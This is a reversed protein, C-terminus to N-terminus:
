PYMANIKEMCELAEPPYERGPIPEISIFIESKEYTTIRFEPPNVLEFLKNFSQMKEYTMYILMYEENNNEVYAKVPINYHTPDKKLNNEYKKYEARYKKYNKQRWCTISAEEVYLKLPAVPVAKEGKQLYNFKIVRLYPELYFLRTFTYIQGGYILNLAVSFDYDVFVVNQTIFLAEKKDKKLLSGISFISKMDFFMGFIVASVLFLLFVIWFLNFGDIVGFIVLIIFILLGHYM